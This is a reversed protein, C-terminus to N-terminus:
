MSRIINNIVTVQCEPWLRSTSSEQSGNRRTWHVLGRAGHMGLSYM